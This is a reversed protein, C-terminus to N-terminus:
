CKIFPPPSTFVAPTRPIKVKIEISFKIKIKTFVLHTGLIKEEAM